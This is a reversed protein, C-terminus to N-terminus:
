ARKVLLFIGSVGLGVVPGIIQVYFLLINLNSGTILKQVSMFLLLSNVSGILILIILSWILALFALKENSRVKEKAYRYVSFAAPFLAFMTGSLTISIPFLLNLLKEDPM